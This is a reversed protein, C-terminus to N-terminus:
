SGGKQLFDLLLKKEGLIMDEHAIFSGSSTCLSFSCYKVNLTKSKKTLFFKLNSQFYHSIDKVKKDENMLNFLVKQSLVKFSLSLGVLSLYDFAAPTMGEKLYYVGFSLVSAYASSSYFEGQLTIFSEQAEIKHAKPSTNILLFNNLFNPKWPYPNVVQFNGPSYSFGHILRSIRHSGSTIHLIQYAHLYARM